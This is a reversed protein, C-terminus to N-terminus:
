LKGEAMLVQRLEQEKKERQQVKWAKQAQADLDPFRKRQIDEFKIEEAVAERAMSVLGKLNMMGRVPLFKPLTHKELFHLAEHLHMRVRELDHPKSGGVRQLEQRRHVVDMLGPPADDKKKEKM